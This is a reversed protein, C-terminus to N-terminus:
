GQAFLRTFIVDAALLILHIASSSYAVVSQGWLVDM